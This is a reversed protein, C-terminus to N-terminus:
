IGAMLPLLAPNALQFLLICGAFILLRRDCLVSRITATPAAVDTNRSREADGMRISTLALIAPAALAATLFFGAQNSVLYGCAGMAAAAFGNGISAFRANRGLRAGLAAHGVLGLSIAAIVPGLVCSAGAHVVRAGMVVLFSPWIALALASLCIAAVALMAVLRASRMADVLAGGPVQCALAVLSRFLTTYPFLTSRPPRRIM